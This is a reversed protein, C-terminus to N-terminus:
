LDSDIRRLTNRQERTFYGAEAWAAYLIPAAHGKSLVLRDNNFNEPQQPFYRMGYTDFFLVAMLEALSSCSSPHGSGAASTSRVSDMRLRTAINSLCNLPVGELLQKKKLAVDAMSRTVRKGKRTAM